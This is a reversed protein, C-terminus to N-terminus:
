NTERKKEHLIQLHKTFPFISNSIFYTLVRCADCVTQVIYDDM